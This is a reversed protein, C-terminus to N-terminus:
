FTNLLISTEGSFSADVIIEDFRHDNPKQRIIVKDM